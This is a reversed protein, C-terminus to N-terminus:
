TITIKPDIYFTSSAKAVKVVATIPGKMQPTITVQMKFESTSGGWTESSSTCASAAALNDAKGSNAFLGRPYSADGLYECEIWIEDNNPVAGGGWTGEITITKSAGTTDNWISIPPSEFHHPYPWKTNATTIIKWAFPTTGDSAGGTRVITTETTLTGQYSVMGNVYNTGSSDSRISYYRPALVTPTAALTVSAGLKCDILFNDTNTNFIQKGSGLASLDVGQLYVGALGAITAFLNTPFVAGAIASPTNKWVFRGNNVAIQDSTSGFAITTNLFTVNTVRFNVGGTTGITWACSDFTWNTQSVTPSGSTAANFKLGYCYAFGATNISNAGTSTIVGTTRLDASVPPVTGGRDVCYIFNPNAITGIATLTVAGATSQVHDHAVYFIDGAASGTLATTLTTAAKAWTDYPSTNSGSHYVYRNAM